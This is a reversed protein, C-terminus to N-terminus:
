IYTHTKNRAKFIKKIENGNAAITSKLHPKVVSTSNKSIIEEPNNSVVTLIVMRLSHNSVVHNSSDTLTVFLRPGIGWGQVKHCLNRRM